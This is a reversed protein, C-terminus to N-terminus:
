RDLTSKLHGEPVVMKYHQTEWYITLKRPHSYCMGTDEPSLVNYTNLLHKIIAKSSKSACKAQASNYFIM